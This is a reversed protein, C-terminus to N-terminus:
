KRKGPSLGSAVATIDYSLSVTDQVFLAGGLATFPQIGFDSQNFEFDGRLSIEGPRLDIRAPLRYSRMAGRITLEVTVVVDPPAGSAVAAHIVVFPHHAADLVREGLMNERTRRVADSSIVSAFANGGAARDNPDDVILEAVPLYFDALSSTFADALFLYGRIERGTIVHNHGMSALRGGRYAKINVVSRAPQVQFVRGGPGYGAQYRELPFGEPVSPVAITPVEKPIQACAGLVLVLLGGLLRKRKGCITKERTEFCGIEKVCTLKM